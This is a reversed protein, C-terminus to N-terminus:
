CGKMEACLVGKVTEQLACRTTTFMRLKQKTFDKVRPKQIIASGCISNNIPLKKRWYKSNIGNFCAQLTEASFDVLLKILKRTYSLCRKKQQKWFESEKIKSLKIIIHGLLTKKPNYRNLTGKLKHVYIDMDKGINPINKAMIEKFLSDDKKEMKSKLIYVNSEKITNWWSDCTRSVLGLSLWGPVVKGLHYGILILVLWAKRKTTTALFILVLTSYLFEVHSLSM